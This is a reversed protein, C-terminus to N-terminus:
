LSSYVALINAVISEFVAIVLGGEFQVTTSNVQTRCVMWLQHNQEGVPGLDQDCGPGVVQGESVNFLSKVDVGAVVLCDEPSSMAILSEIQM